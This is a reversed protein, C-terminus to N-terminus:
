GEGREGGRGSAPHSSLACERYLAEWKEVIKEWGFNALVYERGARARAQAPAPTQLIHVIEDRLGPVDGYTVISGLDNHRVFDALGCRDTAIIPTGCALSELLTIAFMEYASPLVYVSASQYAELKANGALYGTFRVQGELGLGQIQRKIETLYGDDPGVIVLVADPLCKRVENFSAVLFDVGKIKNVRALFLVIPARSPISYRGRFGNVAPLDRYEDLDVGNPLIAIREPEVGLDLFQQQELDNLAHLRCAHRLIRQGVLRDYAAKPALRGMIRPMGGQATLVYPIGMRQLHPLVVANQYSRFEHLHVVDVGRLERELNWGFGLPLFIRNWALANHV